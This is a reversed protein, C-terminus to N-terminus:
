NSTPRVGLGFIMELVKVPAHAYVWHAKEFLWAYLPAVKLAVWLFASIFPASARLCVGGEKSGTTNEVHTAAADMFAQIRQAETMRPKATAYDDVGDSPNHAFGAEADREKLETFGGPM